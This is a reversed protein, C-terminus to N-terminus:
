FSGMNYSLLLQGSNFVQGETNRSLDIEAVENGVLERCVNKAKAMFIWKFNGWDVIRNCAKHMSSKRGPM